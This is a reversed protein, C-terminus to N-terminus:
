EPTAAFAYVTNGPVSGTTAGGVGWYLTNNFIAPASTVTVGAPFTWFKFGTQASLAVLNGGTDGAFVVFNTFTMPGQASAGLTPKALDTAGAPVQWLLSGTTANIASWFGAGWTLPHTGGEGILNNSRTQNAIACFVYNSSGVGVVSSGWEIEGNGVQTAWFLGGNAPNLGWYVGTKEGAGLLWGNSVGGRDDAIGVLSASYLLNPASAFDADKGEPVPCGPLGTLLCGVTWTDAGQFRRSWVLAGTKMDLALIADVYDNPGLCDYQLTTSASVGAENLCTTVAAPLGYNNGTGAFVLGETGLAPAVVINSGWVAGGAYGSPVTKFQWIIAGTKLNLAVVSGRFTPVYTTNIAYSEEKSSVGAYVVGSSITVGGTILGYPHPDVVTSWLLAGTTKNFAMLRAGARDGVVITNGSIAPSTLSYSTSVGTITPLNVEWLLAGTDPDLKYLYGSSDPVYLGGQEVTPTVAISGHSKFQWQVALTKANAASLQDDNEATWTARTNYADHGAFSWPAPTTQAFSISSAGFFIACSVVALLSNNLTRTKRSM